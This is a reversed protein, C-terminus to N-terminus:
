ESESGILDDYRQVESMGL